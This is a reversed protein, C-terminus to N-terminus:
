VPIRRADIKTARTSGRRGNGKMSSIQWYTSSAVSVCICNTASVTTVRGTAGTPESNATSWDVDEMPTSCCIDCMVDSVVEVEKVGLIKM